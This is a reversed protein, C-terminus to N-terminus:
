TEIEEQHILWKQQTYLKGLNEKNFEKIKTRGSKQQDGDSNFGM